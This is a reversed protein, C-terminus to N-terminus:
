DINKNDKKDFLSYTGGILLMLVPMIVIEVVSSLVAGWLIGYWGGFIIFGGIYLVLPYIISMRGTFVGYIHRLIAIIAGIIFLTGIHIFFGIGAILIIIFHLLM